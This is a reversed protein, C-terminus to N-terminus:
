RAVLPRLVFCLTSRSVRSLRTPGLVFLYTCNRMGMGAGLRCSLGDGERELGGVGSEAGM